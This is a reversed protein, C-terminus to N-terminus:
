KALSYYSIDSAIGDITFKSKLFSSALAYEAGIELFPPKLFGRKQLSRFTEQYSALRKKLVKKIDAATPEKEFYIKGGTHQSSIIKRFKIEGLKSKLSQPQM